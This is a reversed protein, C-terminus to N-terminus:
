SPRRAATYGIRRVIEPIGDLVAREAAPEYDVALTAANVDVFIDRVGSLKRGLHEITYACSTCTGGDLDYVARATGQNGTKM